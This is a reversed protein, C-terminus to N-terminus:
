LYSAEVRDFYGKLDGYKNAADRAASSKEEYIDPHTLLREAQRVFEETSNCQAGNKETVIQRLGGVPRALVPKGLFMSEVATLGFGEWQSPMAMIECRNVWPFPNKQFGTLFITDSLGEREIKRQVEDKLEGDGIMVARLSPFKERLGAVIEVFELPQKQETLRGIFGIEFSQEVQEQAAQEWVANLDVVNGLVTSKKEIWRRFRYEDMVSESVCLIRKACLGTWLMAFSNPCIRKLWPCNNHFHAITAPKTFSAYFSARYDMAHIIDPKYQRVLRFVTFPTFNRLAFFPVGEKEVFGRIDGELGAYLVQYGRTQMEKAIQLTIREGGSFICTPTLYLIKKM